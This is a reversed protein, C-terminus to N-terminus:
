DNGESFRKVCVEPLDGALQHRLCISSSPLNSANDDGLCGACLKGWRIREFGGAARPRVVYPKPVPRRGNFMKMWQHHVAAVAAKTLDPFEARLYPRALSMPTVGSAQLTNLFGLHQATVVFPTPATM